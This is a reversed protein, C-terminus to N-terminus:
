GKRARIYYTGESIYIYIYIYVWNELREYMCVSCLLKLMQHSSFLFFSFFFLDAWGGHDVLDVGCGVFGGDDDRTDNVCGMWSLSLIAIKKKQPFMQCM